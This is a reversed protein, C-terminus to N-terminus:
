GNASWWLDRGFGALLDQQPDEFTGTRPGIAGVSRYVEERDAFWDAVGAVADRDLQTPGGIAVALDWGHVLHDAALQAVYEEVREEGYSLLVTGGVRLREAVVAAADEAADLAAAGPADGLLDGDLRDGVEAITGGNLLAVAWLDEGTVHNVLDRVTWEACPTSSAWQDARVRGVRDSWSAVTRRYLDNLDV